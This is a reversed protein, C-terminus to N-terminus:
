EKYMAHFVGAIHKDKLNLLVYASGVISVFLMSGIYVSIALTTLTYMHFPFPMKIPRGTRTIVGKIIQAQAKTSCLYVLAAFSIACAVVLYASYIAYATIVLPGVPGHLGIIYLAPWMFLAHAILPRFKM